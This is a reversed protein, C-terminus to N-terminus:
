SWKLTFWVADEKRDFIWTTGRGQYHGKLNERCWEKITHAMAETMRDPWTMKVKTWGLAIMMDCMIEWDIEEQIEKAMTNVIEEEIDNKM